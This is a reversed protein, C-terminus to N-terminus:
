GGPEGSLAEFHARYAAANSAKWEQLRQVDYRVRERDELALNHTEGPDQALDFVEPGRHEYHYITKRSAERLAMCQRAYWCSFFLAQHGPTSLLSRGTLGAGLVRFGLLEAVTPLIDNTSRLGQVVAGPAEIGAGLLMLPVRVGEDYLVNDHEWRGHEGFAEGHDGVIVFLTEELLGRRAFARHLDEVFRDTYALANLYGNLPEREALDRRAWRSPLTYDHHATLTLLTLLFPAEVGEVWELLPGLMSADEYGFYSSEEFGEPLSEKGMFTAFGFNAVLGRRREFDEEAPQIFATAYGREALLGPLCRGPVGGPRAEHIATSVKPDRGCLISILAKSTHPVPAFAHAVRVGEGALRALFPTTELDPTYPTTSVARASELIVIVVNNRRAARGDLSVLRTRSGAPALAGAPDPDGALLERALTVLTNPKLYGAEEAVDLRSAGLSAALALGWAAVLVRIPAPRRPGGPALRSLALPLLPAALAAALAAAIGPTLKSILVGRLMPANLLAYGLMQGPLPEGQSVFFAHEVVSALLSALVLGHLAGVALPWGRRGRTAHLLAACGAGLLLLVAADGGTVALVDRPHAGGTAQYLRHLKSTLVSLGLPAFWGVLYHHIAAPRRTGVLARSSV